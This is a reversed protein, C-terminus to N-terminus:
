PGNLFIVINNKYKEQDLNEHVGVKDSPSRNSEELMESYLM